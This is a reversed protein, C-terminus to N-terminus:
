RRQKKIEEAVKAAVARIEEETEVVV